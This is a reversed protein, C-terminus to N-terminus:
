YRRPTHPRSQFLACTRRKVVLRGVRVCSAAYADVIGDKKTLCAGGDWICVPKPRVLIGGGGCGGTAVRGPIDDPKPEPLGNKAAKSQVDHEKWLPRSKEVPTSSHM